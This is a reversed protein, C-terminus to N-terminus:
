LSAADRRGNRRLVKEVEPIHRYLSGLAKRMLDIQETFPMCFIETTPLAIYTWDPVIWKDAGVDKARFAIKPGRRSEEVAAGRTVILRVAEKLRRKIKTRVTPRLVVRSNFAVVQMSMDVSRQEPRRPPEPYPRPKYPRSYPADPRSLFAKPFAYLTLHPSVWRPALSQRKDLSLHAGPYTPDFLESTPQPTHKTILVVGSGPTTHRFNVSRLPTPAKSLNRLEIHKIRRSM